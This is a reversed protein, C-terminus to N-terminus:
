NEWEDKQQSRNTVQNLISYVPLAKKKDFSM